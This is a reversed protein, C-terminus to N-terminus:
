LFSPLSLPRVNAPPGQPDLPWRVPPDVQTCEMRCKRDAAIHGKAAPQGNSEDLHANVGTPHVLLVPNLLAQAAGHSALRSTQAAEAAQKMAERAMGEVGELEDRLTQCKLLEDERSATRTRRGAAKSLSANFNQELELQKCLESVDAASAAVLHALNKAHSVANAAERASDEALRLVAELHAERPQVDVHLIAIDSAARLGSPM